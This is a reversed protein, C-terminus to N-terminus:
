LTAWGAAACPASTGERGTLRSTLIHPWKKNAKRRLINLLLMTPMGICFLWFSYWGLYVPVITVTWLFSFELLEKYGKPPKRGSWGSSPVSTVSNMLANAATILYIMLKIYSGHANIESSRGPANM